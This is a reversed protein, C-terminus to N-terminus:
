FYSLEWPPYANVQLVGFLTILFWSWSPHATLAFPMVWLLYWPHFQSSTLVLLLLVGSIILPLHSTPTHMRLVGKVELISWPPASKGRFRSFIIISLLLFSISILISILGLAWDVAGDAGAKLLLISFGMMLLATVAALVMAPVSDKVIIHDRLGRMNLYVGGVLMMLSMLLLPVLSPVGIFASGADLLYTVSMASGWGGTQRVLYDFMLSPDVMLIPISAIIPVALFAGLHKFRDPWREMSLVVAPVIFLPYIKLAMGAGLFLGSLVYRNRLFMGFGILSLAVVIPDFHGALGVELLAVPWLMYAVAASNWTIEPLRSVYRKGRAPACRGIWLLLVPIASNTISFIVRFSTDTPGFLYSIAGVMWIYLPPKNVDFDRYPVSGDLISEGRITIRMIDQSLLPEQLLFPIHLVLAILFFLISLKLAGLSWLKRSLVSNVFLFLTAVYSIYWISHILRFLLWGRGFLSMAILASIFILSSLILLRGRASPSLWGNGCCEEDTEAM